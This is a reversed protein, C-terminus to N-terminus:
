ISVVFQEYILQLGHAQIDWIELAKHEERPPSERPTPSDENSTLVTTTDGIGSRM